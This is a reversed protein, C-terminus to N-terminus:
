LQFREYMSIILTTKGTRPMGSVVVVRTPAKSTIHYALESNLASAPYLARTRVSSASSNTAGKKASESDQRDADDAGLVDDRILDPCNERVPDGFGNACRGNPSGFTCGTQRCARPPVSSTPDTM